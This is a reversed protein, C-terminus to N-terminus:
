LTSGGQPVHAAKDQKEQDALCYAAWPVAELRPAEIQRGCAICKGYTGNEIRKLADEVEVLTRSALTAEELSESTGQAISADDTPDRVEPDGSGRAEGELLAIESQLEREKDRLRQKFHEINMCNSYVRNRFVEM